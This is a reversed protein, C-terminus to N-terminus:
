LKPLPHASLLSKVTDAELGRWLLGEAMQDSSLIGDNIMDAGYLSARPTIAVRLKREVATKRVGQVWDVWREVTARRQESARAQAALREMKEDIPWQIAYFRDLFAPDLPRRSVYAVDGGRGNTNGTMVLVFDPHRDVMGDPFACSGNELASNLATLLNPSANDGEDVCFVGGEEYIQRFRTTVYRGTADIFGFLRSTSTQPDLSVYGYKLGEAHAVQAAATSKGSGAPGWLFAHRRKKAVYLLEAFKEHANEISHTVDGVVNDIKIGARETVAKRAAEEIVPLVAQGIRELNAQMASEAADKIASTFQEGGLFETVFERLRDENVPKAELSAGIIPKLANGLLALIANADTGSALATQVAVAPEDPDVDNPVEHLKPVSNRDETPEAVCREHMRKGGKRLTAVVEGPNITGGCEPCTGGYRATFTYPPTQESTATKTATDM